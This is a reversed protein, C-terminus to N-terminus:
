RRAEEITKKIWFPTNLGYGSAHFRVKGEKDLIVNTPYLNIRYLDAYTRGDEVIHYGFPHTQIFHNIDTKYDLAIAIFVINPDNAYELSIKNLEPIEQRCPPCGIFWFNLVVVKGELDKLKIKNGTIDHVTFSKIKEGTTFFISEEPKNMLNLMRSKQAADMVLLVYATSDSNPNDAKLLYNGSAIIKKWVAYPYRVGASDKVITNEGLKVNSTKVITKQAYGIGCSTSIIIFLLFFKKM